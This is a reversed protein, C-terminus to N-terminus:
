ASFTDCRNLDGSSFGPPTGAKRQAASGHTWSEPNVRVGAQAEIRDDGVAAAANQAQEVDAQTVHRQGAGRQRRRAQGVRRRLLRGAARAGGVPPQGPQPQSSSAVCRPEIGLLTQLHHGDEHALIYAQAYRGPAGFQDQLQQLFDLDLYIQDDPPCYFPGVQATANGCGTSVSGTFFVLGPRQYSPRAAPVGRVM